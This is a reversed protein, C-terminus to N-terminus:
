IGRSAIRDRIIQAQREIIIRQEFNSTKLSLLSLKILDSFEERHSFVHNAITFAGFTFISGTLLGGAALANFALISLATAAVVSVLPYRRTFDNISQTATNLLNANNLNPIAFSM